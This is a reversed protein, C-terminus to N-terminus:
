GLSRPLRLELLCAELALLTPVNGDIASRCALIADLRRLVDHPALVAALRKIAPAEEANILADHGSQTALVDRYVGTLETLARDVADREMRTRRTKQREELDKRAAAIHKPKAGKTTLGMAREFEAREREEIVAAGAQTEERAAAVINAAATVAAGVSVIQAPLQVIERRRQRATEDRALARARGIHGQAARAAYHALAPDFGDRDQLLSAIADTSPTALRLARCRSRITVIVDDTSPACLVWVTRPAPEEIAKLLADAGKDTIRDADEIVIVQWRRLTPSMAARRVLERVEDVGISLQDTRVLTVDPHAGSLASRCDRCEGCGGDHCQLAAAFARAANSRGSGPPGTVLWAHTMAHGEGAVARCLTEVASQQGVLEDWVSVFDDQGM